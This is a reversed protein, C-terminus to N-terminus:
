LNLLKKNKKYFGVCTGTQDFLSETFQEDNAAFKKGNLTIMIKKETKIQYSTNYLNMLCCDLM